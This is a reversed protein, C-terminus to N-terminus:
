KAAVAMGSAAMGNYFLNTQIFLSRPLFLAGDVGLLGPEKREYDNRM